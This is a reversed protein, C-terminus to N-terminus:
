EVGLLIKAAALEEELQTIRSEYDTTEPPAPNNNDFETIEEETASEIWQSGDWLPSVFGITGANGKFLPPDTEVIREGTKLEYYQIDGNEDMLAYDIYQGTENVICIDRM